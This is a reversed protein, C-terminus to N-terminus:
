RGRRNRAEAIKRRQEEAYDPDDWYRRAVDSMLNGDKDVVSKFVEDWERLEDANTSVNFGFKAVASADYEM